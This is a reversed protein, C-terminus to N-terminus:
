IVTELIFCCWTFGHVNTNKNTSNVTQLFCNPSCSYVKEDVGLRLEVNVKNGVKLYTIKMWCRTYHWNKCLLRLYQVPIASLYLLSAKYSLEFYWLTRSLVLVIFTLISMLHLWLEYKKVTNNKCIIQPKRTQKQRSLDTRQWREPKEFVHQPFIWTKASWPKTLSVPPKSNSDQPVLGHM